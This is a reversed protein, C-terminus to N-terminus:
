PLPRNAAAICVWHGAKFVWTDISRRRQLSVKGDQARKERYTRDVIVTGSGFSRVTMSEVAVELLTSGALRIRALYEAKSLLAGDDEIAVLANDFMADLASNDKRVEAEARKHELARVVSAAGNEAGGGQGACLLGTACVGVWAAVFIQFIKRRQSRDSAASM